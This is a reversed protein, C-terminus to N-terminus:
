FVEDHNPVEKPKADEHPTTDGDDLRILNKPLFGRRPVRYVDGLLTRVVLLRGTTQVYWGSVIIRLGFDPDREGANIWRLVRVVCGANEPISNNPGLVVMALCGPEIPKGKM